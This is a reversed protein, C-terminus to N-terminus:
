GEGQSPPSKTELRHAGDADVTLPRNRVVANCNIRGYIHPYTEGSRSPERRVEATLRETDVDLVILGSQGGYLRAAVRLTQDEDVSCHIFGEAALSPAEYWGSDQSAEWAEPTTLHYIVTM